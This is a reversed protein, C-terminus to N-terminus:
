SKGPQVDATGGRVRASIAKETLLTERQSRTLRAGILQSLETYEETSLESKALELLWEAQRDRFTVVIKWENQHQDCPKLEVDSDELASIESIRSNVAPLSEPTLRIGVGHHGQKRASRVILLINEFHDDGLILDADVFTNSSVTAGRAVLWAGIPHITHRRYIRGAIADVYDVHSM